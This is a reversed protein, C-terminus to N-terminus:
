PKWGIEAVRASRPVDTVAENISIAEGPALSRKPPAVEWSYVIREQEDRLVILLPPVKRTESSTNTITGSAGFYETGNPLQRREQQELPFNLQLEPQAKAFTGNALPLWSPLGWASAALFVAAALAAMVGAVWIWLRVPSRRARAAPVLEFDDTGRKRALTPSHIPSSSLPPTGVPSSAPTAPADWAPGASAPSPPQPGESPRTQPPQAFSAFFTQEPEVPPQPPTANQEPAQTPAQAPSPVPSEAGEASKAAPAAANEPATGEAVPTPSGSPQPAEPAAPTPAGQTEDPALPSQHWSSRCKACRVTRGQEGIATDPVVFRTSCAPCVIIM